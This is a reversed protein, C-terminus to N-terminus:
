TTEQNITNTNPFGTNSNNDQRQRRAENILTNRANEWQAQYVELMKYNRMFKAMEVMAGYYLADSCFDTFYNTQVSTSLPTPRGQYRLTMQFASVPTPAVVFTTNDVDAYYKPNGTSTAVPWYDMVYSYTKKRVMTRGTSTTYWLDQGTKYGSPKTLFPDGASATVTATFTVGLTDMERAIKQEALDIAAPIFQAFEASDDENVETIAAVLTDYSTIRDAM